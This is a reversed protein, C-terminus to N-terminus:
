IHKESIVQSSDIVKELDCDFRELVLYIQSYSKNTLVDKLSVICPHGNFMRLLSLERLTEKRGYFKKTRKIALTEGTARNEALFVEGFSGFGLRSKQAVQKKEDLDVAYHERFFRPM